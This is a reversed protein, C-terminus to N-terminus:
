LLGLYEIFWDVRGTANNPFNIDFSKTTLNSPYPNGTTSTDFHPQLIIRYDATPLEYRLNVTVSTQNAFEVSGNRQYDNFYDVKLSDRNFLSNRYIMSNVIKDLSRDRVMCGIPMGKYGYLWAPSKSDPIYNADLLPDQESNTISPPTHSGLNYNPNNNYSINNLVLIRDVSDETKIGDSVSNIVINNIILSCDSDDEILIGYKGSGVITNNVVITSSFDDGRIGAGYNQTAPNIILNDAIYGKTRPFQGSSVTDFKIGEYRHNKCVNGQIYVDIVNSTIIGRLSDETNNALIFIDRADYFCIAGNETNDVRSCNRCDCNIVYINRCLDEESVPTTLVSQYRQFQIGSEDCDHVYLDKLVINWVLAPSLLCVAGANDSAGPTNSGRQNFIEFGSIIVDHAQDEFAIGYTNSADIKPNYNPDALIFLPKNAPITIRNYTINTKVLIVDGSNANDIATQLSNPDSSTLEVDAPPIYNRYIIRSLMFDFLALGGGVLEGDPTLLRDGAKWGQNYLSPRNLSKTLSIYWDAM